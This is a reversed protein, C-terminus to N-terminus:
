DLFKFVVNDREHSVIQRFVNLVEHVALPKPKIGFGLTRQKGKANKAVSGLDGEVEYKQKIMASM